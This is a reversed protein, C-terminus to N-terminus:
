LLFSLPTLRHRSVWTWFRNALPLDWSTWWHLKRLSDLWSLAPGKSGQVATSQLPSNPPSSPNDEPTMPQTSQMGDQLSPTSGKSQDSDRGQILLEQQQRAKQRAIRAQVVKKWYARQKHHRRVARTQATMNFHLGLQASYPKHQHKDLRTLLHQLAQPTVSHNIWVTCSAPNGNSPPNFQHLFNTIGKATTPYDTLPTYPGFFQPYTAKYLTKLKPKGKKPHPLITSSPDCSFLHLYFSGFAQRMSFVKDKYDRRQFHLGPLCLTFKSMYPLPKTPPSSPYPLPCLPPRSQRSQLVM